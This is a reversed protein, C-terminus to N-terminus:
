IHSWPTAGSIIEQAALALTPRNEAYVRLTAQLRAIEADRDDCAQILRKILSSKGATAYGARLQDLEAPTIPKMTAM